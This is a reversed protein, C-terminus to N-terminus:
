QGIRIKDVERKVDSLVQFPNINWDSEWVTILNYGLSLIYQERDKTRLYLDQATVDKDYPHCKTDPKYISPNGHFVDGYFEIILNLENNYADVKLINKHRPIIYEYGNLSSIFLIGLKQELNAIFNQSPKSYSRPPTCIPCQGGKNLFHQGTVKFHCHCSVCQLNIPNRFGTYIANDLNINGLVKRREVEKLFKNQMEQKILDNKRKNGCTPCGYKNNLHKYPTLYFYDKHSNCYILVQTDINKYIVKDYNYSDGWKTTAQQIFSETTGSFSEKNLRKSCTVCGGGNNNLYLHYRINTTFTNDCLTCYVNIIQTEAKVDRKVNLNPYLFRNGWKKSAEQLFLENTFGFVRHKRNYKCYSCGKITDPKFLSKYSLLSVLGCDSCFISVHHDQGVKCFDQTLTLRDGYKEKLKAKFIDKQIELM